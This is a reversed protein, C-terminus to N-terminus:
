GGFLKGNIVFRGDVIHVFSKTFTGDPMTYVYSFGRAWNYPPKGRLYSLDFNSLTGISEIEIPLGREDMFGATMHSHVHGFMVNRGPFRRAMDACASPGCAWGHTYVIKDLHFHGGYEVWKWGRETLNYEHAWSQQWSLLAKTIRDPPCLFKAKVKHYRDEHNGGVMYKECGRPLAKDLRDLLDNAAKLEDDLSIYEDVNHLDFSGLSNFDCFDGLQVLRNPKWYRIFQLIAEISPKHEHPVHVDPLVITRNIGNPM